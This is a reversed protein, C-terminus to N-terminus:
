LRSPEEQYRSEALIIIEVTIIVILISNIIIHLFHGDDFIVKEKHSQYRKSLKKDKSFFGFLFFHRNNELMLYVMQIHCFLCMEDTSKM